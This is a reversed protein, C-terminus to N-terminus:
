HALYRSTHPFEIRMWIQHDATNPEHCVLRKVGVSFVSFVTSLHMQMCLCCLLVILPSMTSSEHYYKSKLTLFQKMIPEVALNNAEDNPQWIIDSKVFNIVPLDCTNELRKCNGSHRARKECDKSASLPTSSEPKKWNNGYTEPAAALITKTMFIRQTLSLTHVAILASRNQSLIIEAGLGNTTPRASAQAIRLCRKCCVSFSASM